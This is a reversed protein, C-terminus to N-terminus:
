RVLVPELTATKLNKMPTKVDTALGLFKLACIIYYTFDIEYWANGHAASSQYAHHNNHWGEGAGLIGMWWCNRSNDSTEFSRYGFTHTVSNICWTIHWMLVIRVFMGWMVFPLGGLLYLVPIVAIIIFVFYRNLFRYYAHSALDPVYKSWQNKDDEFEKRFFLHGIHAFFFGERSNHPDGPMDSYRHHLRHEAVWVMMPGQASAAAITALTYELWVPVKFSRHTLLRHYCLNIGLPSITFLLVLCAALAGWTFFPIAAIAGLHVLTIWFINEYHLKRKM